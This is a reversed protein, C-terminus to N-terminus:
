KGDSGDHEPRPPRTSRDPRPELLAEGNFGPMTCLRPFHFIM